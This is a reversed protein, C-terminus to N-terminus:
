PQITVQVPSALDVTQTTYPDGLVQQFWSEERPEGGHEMVLKALAIADATLMRICGHSEAHGLSNEDPTSHIYYDPYVFYMKVRGMPNDPSGPASPQRDRAWASAPPIWPPNWVVRGINFTGTPTPYSPQGVAVPYSGVLDDGVYASLVRESLSV